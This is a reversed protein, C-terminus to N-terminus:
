DAESPPRAARALRGERAAIRERNIVYLGTAIIVAAGALTWFDPLQGFVAWGYFTGWVIMTYQVPAVAVAQAMELAKIVLLEAVGAMVAISVFIMWQHPETPWIWVFPLPLTLLFSGTLATYAVTTATRDDAALVRSIVQRLAFMVAAAIVLLIAPHLVGAGPRIIILTAAFGIAVALWRRIGVPERLILAGFVTVIFPAVFSVAVADALPVFRLGFIFTTASVVALAGRTIQMGPRATRLVSFGHWGLLAFMGALLGLQRVWVVQIPHFDQALLKAQMDVASFIFFGLAILLIGRGNRVPKGASSVM